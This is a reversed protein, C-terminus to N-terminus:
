RWRDIEFRILDSKSKKKEKRKFVRCNSESYLTSGNVNFVSIRSRFTFAHLIAIIHSVTSIRLNHVFVCIIRDSLPWFQNNKARANGNKERVEIDYQSHLSAQSAWWRNSFPVILESFTVESTMWRARQQISLYQSHMALKNRIEISRHPSRGLRYIM